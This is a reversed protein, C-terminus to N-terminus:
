ANHGANNEGAVSKCAHSIGSFRAMAPGCVRANIGDLLSRYATLGLAKAIFAEHVTNICEVVTVIARLIAVADLPDALISDVDHYNSKIRKRYLFSLISTTGHKESAEAYDAATFRKKRTGNKTKKNSRDLLWQRLAAERTASLLSRIHADVWGPTEVRSQLLSPNAAPALNTHSYLTKPGGTLAIAITRPYHGAQVENGFKKILAHHSARETFGAVEYYAHTAAFVCYYAQPFAWVLSNKMADRDLESENRRLLSETAWCNVLHIRLHPPRLTKSACFQKFYKLRPLEELAAAPQFRVALAKWQNEAMRARAPDHTSDFVDFRM